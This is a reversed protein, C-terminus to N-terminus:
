EEIKVESLGAIAWKEIELRSGDPNTKLIVSQEKVEDVEGSIGSFTIVKDGKKLAEQMKKLNADSKRKQWTGFYYIILLIIVVAITSLIQNRDM